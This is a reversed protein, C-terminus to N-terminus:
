KPRLGRKKLFKLLIDPKNSGIGDVKMKIMRDIPDEDDVNWVSISKGIDHISKVTEQEVTFYNILLRDADAAKVMEKVNVPLGVIIAGTKISPLLRKAALIRNHHFSTLMFNDTDYKKIIEVAPRETNGGKLEIQLDVKGYGLDVVEQLTPIQQGKGADLKKIEQLTFNEALGRGNTTRDLEQDHLVILEKDKTLRVDLEITDVGLEIAKKFSSMTNEPEYSAAGRHGIVEIM